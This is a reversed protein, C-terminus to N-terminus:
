TDIEDLVIRGIKECNGEFAFLELHLINRNLDFNCVLYPKLSESYEKVSIKYPTYELNTSHVGHYNIFLALIVDDIIKVNPKAERLIFDALFEGACKGNVLSEMKENFKDDNFQYVAPIIDCICGLKMSNFENRNHHLVFLPIDIGNSIMETQEFIKYMLRAAWSIPSSQIEEAKNGSLNAIISYRVMKNLTIAPSVNSYFLNLERIINSFDRNIEISSDDIPSSVIVPASDNLYNDLLSSFVDQCMGDWVAHSKNVVIMYKDSFEVIYIWALVSPKVLKKESYIIGSILNVLKDFQKESFVQFVPIEIVKDIKYASLCDKDYDYYARLAPNDIIMRNLGSQIKSLSYKKPVPFFADSEDNRGKSALFYSSATVVENTHESKVFSDNYQKMREAYESYMNKLQDSYVNKKIVSESIGSKILETLENVLDVADTNVIVDHNYMVYLLMGKEHILIFFKIDCQANIFVDKFAEVKINDNDIIDHTKIINLSIKLDAADINSNDECSMKEIDKNLLDDSNFRKKTIMEFCGISFESQDAPRNINDNIFTFEVQEKNLIKKVSKMILDAFFENIDVELLGPLFDFMDLAADNSINNSLTSFSNYNYTESNDAASEIVLENYIDKNNNQIGYVFEKESKIYISVFENLIVFLSTSDLIAPHAFVALRCSENNIFLVFRVLSGTCQSIEFEINSFNVMM